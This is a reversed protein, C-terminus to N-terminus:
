VEPEWDEGIDSWQLDDMVFAAILYLSDRLNAVQEDTLPCESGLLDRCEEIGIM